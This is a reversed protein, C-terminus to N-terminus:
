KSYKKFVVNGKEDILEYVGYPANKKIVTLSKDVQLQDLLSIDESLYTFLIRFLNVNSRLKDDFFPRGEPWKIALTTTFISYTLDRDTQKEYSESTSEFGVYGGHDAIIIILADKDLKNIINITEKLWLNALELNELYNEREIEKGKSYSKFTSIHGPLFKEILYFNNLSKNIKILEELKKQNDKNLSFGRSFFSIESYDINCYDYYIKPRNLILYSSELLLSTNYNNKKLISLVSNNGVINKRSNRLEGIGIQSSSNLYHHKMMFMSSNSSLTSNYNSRFNNYLVFGNQNLYSEFDSNDFNYYGKKLESFNAYGDPQIVYINPKKLFVTEEIDDPQKMWDKSYTIQKYLDPILKASVLVALIFQFVVIKKIHNALLIALFFAIFIVLAIIEKRLGYTSLVILFAFWCLNLIPVAYKTHQKFIKSKELFKSISFFIIIPIFIFFSLFFLFQTWSNLLTFNKNYYFLFPYLGAAIATIVPFDNKSNIFQIIKTRLRNLM